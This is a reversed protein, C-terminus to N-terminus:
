LNEKKPSVLSDRIKCKSGEMSYTSQHKNNNRYLSLEYTWCSECPNNESIFKSNPDTFVAELEMKLENQNM